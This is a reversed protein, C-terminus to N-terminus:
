VASCCISELSCELFVRFSQKSSTTDQFLPLTPNPAQREVLKRFRRSGLELQQINKAESIEKGVTFEIGSM